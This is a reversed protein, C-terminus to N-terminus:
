PPRAEVYVAEGQLHGSPDSYYLHIINAQQVAELRAEMDAQARSVEIPVEGSYGCSVQAPHVHEPPRPFVTVKDEGFREVLTKYLAPLNIGMGLCWATVQVDRIEV